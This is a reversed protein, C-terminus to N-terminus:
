GEYEARSTYGALNVLMRVAQAFTIQEDPLFEGNGIGSILGMSAASMVANYSPHDNPVDSFEIENRYVVDGVINMVMEIFEGRTVEKEEDFTLDDELIGLAMLTKVPLSLEEEEAYVPSLVSILMIATIFLVTLKRKIM